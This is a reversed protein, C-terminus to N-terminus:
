HPGIFMRKTARPEIASSPTPRVDHGLWFLRRPLAFLSYVPWLLARNMARRYAVCDACAHGYKPHWCTDWPGDCRLRYRPEGLVEAIDHLPDHPM